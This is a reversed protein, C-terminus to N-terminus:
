LIPLPEPAPPVYNPCGLHYCLGVVALIIFSELLFRLAVMLTTDSRINVVLSLLPLFTFVYILSLFWNIINNDFGIHYAHLHIFVFGYVIVLVKFIYRFVRNGTYLKWFKTKGLHKELFNYEWNYM